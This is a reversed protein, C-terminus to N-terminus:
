AYYFIRFLYVLPSKVAKNMRGALPFKYNTFLIKYIM